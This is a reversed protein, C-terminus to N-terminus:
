SKFMNLRPCSNKVMGQLAWPHSAVRSIFEALQQFQEPTKEWKKLVLSPTMWNAQFLWWRSFSWFSNFCFRQTTKLKLKLQNVKALKHADVLSVDHEDLDLEECYPADKFIADLIIQLFCSPPRLRSFQTHQGILKHRSFLLFYCKEWLGPGKM